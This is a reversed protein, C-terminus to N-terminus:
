SSYCHQKANEVRKQASTVIERILDNFDIGKLRCMIPLDSTMYNLGALPNVEIFNAVGEANMRVDVRGGDRCGLARWAALAVNECKKANEESALKYSVRDEYNDKNSYSYIEAEAKEGLIIEMVAVVKANEGTGTIGVTFEDGSLFTEILVPQKFEKLLKECVEKLQEKSTIKSNANIGKGTGEAVPKAFLPYLLNVKNIDEINKLVFFDATPIGFNRIITKTLGKDLTVALTFADSFVYPLEFADLIAPVQAERAMGFMGEAINFVLDWKEGNALAKILNKVHGIRKTKHGLAHLAKEIGEITSEKDFEATEEESYGMDLYDQRLDYTLGIKM